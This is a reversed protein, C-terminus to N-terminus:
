FPDILGLRGLARAIGDSDNSSTVLNAAHRLAPTSNGMAVGIGARAVMPLDNDGDGFAIVNSIDVGYERALVGIAAAKSTQASTVECYTAKSLAASVGLLSQNAWDRLGATADSSGILLVKHVSPARRFDAVITPGFGLIRAEAVVGEGISEVFWEFGTFLNVELRRAIAAEVIADIAPGDITREHLIANGQMILAGNLSILAAADSGLLSDAITKVSKPPRASALAVLHGRDVLAATAQRTSRLIAGSSALLTGDIDLVVLRRKDSSPRM